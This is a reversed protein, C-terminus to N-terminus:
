SLTAEVQARLVPIQLKNPQFIADINVNINGHEGHEGSNRTMPEIKEVLSFALLSVYSALLDVLGRSGYRRKRVFFFFLFSICVNM